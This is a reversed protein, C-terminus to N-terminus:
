SRTPAPTSALSASREPRDKHLQVLVPQRLLNGGFLMRNGIKNEDLHRAFAIRTFPGGPSVRLMFGFWSPSCHPGTESDWAFGEPSWGTAHTPLIFDFFEECIACAAGSTNGIQRDAGPHLPLKKM